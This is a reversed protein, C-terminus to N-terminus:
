VGILGVNSDAYNRLEQRHEPDAISIMDDCRERASKLRLDVSGHETVVHGAHYRSISAPIGSLLPVIRSSRQDGYVSPFAVISTRGNCSAAASFDVSGGAGGSIEAGIYDSNTQGFLDMQLCSNLFVLRSDSHLRYPNHSHLGHMMRVAHNRDVLNYLEQTGAIEGVEALVADVNVPRTRFLDIFGDNLFSYLTGDFGHATLARVVETPIAGVGVQLRARTPVLRGCAKAIQAEVAQPARNPLEPLEYSGAVTIDVRDLPIESDGYTYPMRDNIEAIVHQASDVMPRIYGCSTGLSVYGPRHPPAVQILAFDVPRQQVYQCAQYWSLPLHRIRASSVSVKNLTGPAFWTEYRVHSDGKAIFRYDSLLLGSVLTSGALREIEDALAELLHQPTAALGGIGIRAGPPIRAIAEHASLGRPAM